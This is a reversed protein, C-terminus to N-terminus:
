SQCVQLCVSLCVPLYTNRCVSLCTSLYLCVSLCVLVPSYSDAKIFLYVFAAWRATHSSRLIKRGIQRQPVSGEEAAPQEGDGDPVTEGASSFMVFGPFVLPLLIM